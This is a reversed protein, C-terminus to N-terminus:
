EYGPPDPYPPPLSFLSPSIDIYSLSFRTDSLKRQTLPLSHTGTYPPSLYPRSGYICSIAAAVVVSFSSTLVLILVYNNRFFDRLIKKDAGPESIRFYKYASYELRPTEVAMVMMSETEQSSCPQSSQAFVRIYAMNKPANSINLHIFDDNIYRIFRTDLESLFRISVFRDSIHVKRKDYFEMRFNVTKLSYITAPAVMKFSIILLGEEDYQGSLCDIRQISAQCGIRDHIVTEKIFHTLDINHVSIHVERAFSGLIYMWILIIPGGKETLMRIFLRETLNYGKPIIM